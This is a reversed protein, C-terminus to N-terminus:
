QTRRLQRKGSEDEHHAQQEAREKLLRSEDGGTDHM